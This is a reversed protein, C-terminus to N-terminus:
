SLTSHVKLKNLEEIQQWVDGAQNIWTMFVQDGVISGIGQYTTQETTNLTKHVQYCAVYGEAKPVAVVTRGNHQLRLQTMHLDSTERLRKLLSQWASM